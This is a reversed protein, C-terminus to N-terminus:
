MSNCMTQNGVRYCNTIVPKPINASPAQQQPSYSPRNNAAQQYHIAAEACKSESVENPNKLVYDYVQKVTEPNHQRNRLHSEISSKGQAAISVDLQKRSTCVVLAALQFGAAQQERETMPSASPIASCGTLTTVLFGMLLHKM